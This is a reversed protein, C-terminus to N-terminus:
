AVEYKHLASYYTLAGVNPRTFDTNVWIGTIGDMTEETVAIRELEDGALLLCPIAINGCDLTFQREITSRAVVMTWVGRTICFPHAENYIRVVLHWNELLHKDKELKAFNHEELTTAIRVGEVLSEHPPIDIM